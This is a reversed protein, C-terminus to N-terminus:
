RGIAIGIVSVPADFMTSVRARLLVPGSLPDVKLVAPLASWDLTPSYPYVTGTDPTDTRSVATTAVWSEGNDKSIEFTLVGQTPKEDEPDDVFAYLLGRLAGQLNLSNGNPKGEAALTWVPADGDAWAPVGVDRVVVYGCYGDQLVTAAPVPAMLSTM